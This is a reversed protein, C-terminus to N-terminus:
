ETAAGLNSDVGGAGPGRPMEEQIARLWADREALIQVDSSDEDQVCLRWDTSATATYLKFCAAGELNYSEGTRTKSDLVDNLNLSATAAAPDDGMDGPSNWARLRPPAGGEGGILQYYRRTWSGFYGAKELLYGQKIIRSITFPDVFPVCDAIAIGGSPAVSVTWESQTEQLFNFFETIMVVSLSQGPCGRSMPQMEFDPQDWGPGNAPQAWGTGLYRRYIELARLNFEEADSGWVRPDRLSMGLNFITRHSGIDTSEWYPFGLVGPFRRITEFVFPMVTDETLQRQSEELPSTSSFLVALGAKTITSVSLGGAFTMSDMAGTAIIHLQADSLASVPPFVGRTDRAIALKYKRLWDRRMQQLRRASLGWRGVPHDVITQSMATVIVALGQFEYFETAEADTLDMNLHIKHLLKTSWACVDRDADISQRNQFFDRTFDAVMEPNWWQSGAGVLADMMPRFYRHDHVTLGLGLTKVDGEQVDWMATNLILYGLDNLRFVQGTEQLHPVQELGDKVAQWTLESHDNPSPFNDVTACDDTSRSCFHANHAKCSGGRCRLRPVCQRFYHHVPDDGDGDDIFPLQARVQVPQWSQNVMDHVRATHPHMHACTHERKVALSISFM